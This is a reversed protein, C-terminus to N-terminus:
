HSCALDPPSRRVANRAQPNRHLHRSFQSEAKRGGSPHDALVLGEAGVGTLHAHARELFLRVVDEESDRSSSIAPQAQTDEIVVLATAGAEKARSLVAIFFEEREGSALNKRMWSGRAPSWKFEEGEPFGVEGCLSEIAGELDRVADGPIHVGGVAVIPRMGDRSPKRQSSDDAVVLDM